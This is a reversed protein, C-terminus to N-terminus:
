KKKSFLVKRKKSNAASLSNQKDKVETTKIEESIASECDAQQPLINKIKKQTRSDVSITTTTTTTKVFKIEYFNQKDKSKTEEKLSSLIQSM